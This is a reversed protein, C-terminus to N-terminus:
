WRPVRHSRVEPEGGVIEHLSGSMPGWGATAAIRRATRRTRWSIRSSTRVSWVGARGSGARLAMAGASVVALGKKELDDEPVRLQDALIHRAIAEAMPSRCTNGSCVFLITTRLLREIIRQDYIGPRVIEYSDQRVRVITSPKSFRPPGADLVLDVKGDLERAVDRGDAHENTGAKLAAVPAGAAGVADAFV